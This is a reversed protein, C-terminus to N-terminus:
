PLVGVRNMAHSHIPFLGSPCLGLLVTASHLLLLDICWAVIWWFSLLLSSLFFFVEALFVTELFSKSLVLIGFSIPSSQDVCPSFAIGEGMEFLLGDVKIPCALSIVSVVFFPCWYITLGHATYNAFTTVLVDAVLACRHRILYDVVSLIPAGGM